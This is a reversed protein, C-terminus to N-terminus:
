GRAEGSRVAQDACPEQPQIHLVCCRGPQGAEPVQSQSLKKEKQWMVRCLSTESQSKRVHTTRAEKQERRWWGPGQEEKRAAQFSLKRLTPGPAKQGSFHGDTAGSGQM